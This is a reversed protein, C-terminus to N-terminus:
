VAFIPFLKTLYFLSPAVFLFSDFRDIVGGHGPMIKGFDKIGSQRKIASAFLDRMMEFFACLIGILNLFKVDNRIPLIYDRIPM